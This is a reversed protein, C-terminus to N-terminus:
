FRSVTRFPVVPLERMDVRPCAPTHDVRPSTAPSQAVVRAPDARPLAPPERKPEARPMAPWPAAMPVM